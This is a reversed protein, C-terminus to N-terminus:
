EDSGSFTTFRPKPASPTRPEFRGAFNEFRTFRDIFTLRDVGIPGNRQKACIIEAIGRDHTEPNYVEDRYIFLIVDADQEIAGSERLDSMVPRKNQRGELSRNLQSLAIVPCKLEKAMAKLGRSIESIETARNEGKSVGSMIQIYDVVVLGLSGYRRRFRRARARVEGITLSGTEDISLPAQHMKALADNLRDWDHSTLEGRRVTESDVRAISSVMRNGLQTDGMEMSFILVPERKEFAVYEAMNVAMATKGMSPRGAVIILDGRQLGDLRRDIDAFGSPLGSLAGKTKAREEMMTLVDTLVDDISRPGSTKKRVSEAIALISSESEQLITAADKGDPIYCVDAIREAELILKRLVARSYVIEAYVRINAASPTGEALSQIYGLGGAETLKGQEKLMQAVTVIDAPKNQEVLKTIAAFILRHDQRYFAEAGIMECVLEWAENRLILGGLVSQEAETSHPPLRLTAITTKDMLYDALTAMDNM